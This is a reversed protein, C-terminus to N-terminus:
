DNIETMSIHKGSGPSQKKVLTFVIGGILAVLLLTGIVLGAVQGGTLSSKGNPIDLTSNFTTTSGTSMVSDSQAPTEGIDPVSSTPDAGGDSLPALMSTASQNLDPASTSTTSQNLDPALTSTASQNLMSTASQNLAPALTSTASQNLDPALTREELTSTDTCNFGDGTFGPDCTCLFSGLTNNCQSSTGNCMTNCEDIDTCSPATGNYGTQCECKYSGVTDTCSTSKDKCLTLCENIDTCSPATGNYGTQCECKYSGVTDTCSTSKDKCLTLCENINQCENTTRNYSHGPLCGCDFTNELNQCTANTPCPNTSCEDIDTCIPLPTWMGNYQCTITDISSTKTDMTFGARCSIGLVTGSANSFTANFDHGLSSDLLPCSARVPVTRTQSTTKATNCQAQITPEDAFTCNFKPQNIDVTCTINISQDPTYSRGDLSATGTKTCVGATCNTTDSGTLVVNNVMITVTPEPYGQGTCSIPHVTNSNDVYHSTNFSLITPPVVVPVTRTHSTTKAAATCQSQVTSTETGSCTFPPQNIDVTCTINISQGPTYTSGDLSATHTKTCVGATCNNTDNGTVVVNNVMITVAPEPYGQGKCSIPHVTNNNNVYDSTNLSLVTPPVVVNLQYTESSNGIDTICRYQGTYTPDLTLTNWFLSFPRTTPAISFAGLDAVTTSTDTNTLRLYQGSAGAGLVEASCSPLFDLGVLETSSGNLYYVTYTKLGFGHRLADLHVSVQGGSCVPLPTWAGNAQCKISTITDRSIYGTGCSVGLVTGIARSSTPNYPYEFPLYKCLKQINSTQIYKKTKLASNCNTEVFGNKAASCNFPPQNIDASFTVNHHTQGTTYTIDNLITYRTTRCEGDSCRSSSQGPQEVGNLLVKMTPKPYGHADCSVQFMANGYLSPLTFHQISPLSIVHLRFTQQATMAGPVDSICEYLGTYREDLTPHHVTDWEVITSTASGSQDFPQNHEGVVMNNDTNILKINSGTAGQAECSPLYSVGIDATRQVRLYYAIFPATGQGVAKLTLVQGNCYPVCAILAAVLILFGSRNNMTAM